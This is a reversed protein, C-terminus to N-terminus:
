NKQPKRKKKHNKEPKNILKQIKKRQEKKFKNRKMDKERTKQVKHAFIEHKSRQVVSFKKAAQNLIDNTHNLSTMLLYTNLKQSQM